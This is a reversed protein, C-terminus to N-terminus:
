NCVAKAIKSLSHSRLFVVSLKHKKTGLFRITNQSCLTSENLLLSEYINQPYLASPINALKQSISKGVMWAKTRPIKGNSSLICVERPM